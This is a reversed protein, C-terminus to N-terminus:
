SSISRSAQKKTEANRSLREALLRMVMRVPSSELTTGVATLGIERPSVLRAPLGYQRLSGMLLAATQEEGTVAYAATAERCNSGLDEAVEAM